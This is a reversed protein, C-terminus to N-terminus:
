LNLGDQLVELAQAHVRKDGAAIARGDDNVPGGDWNSIVGGAGRVIPVLAQIDYANLGAEVVLDIQGMALMGYGYCDGGYRLLKCRGALHDFAKWEELAPFCGPHTSSLIADGLSSCARTELVRPESGTRQYQARESDGSFVEGLIPQGMVGLFAEEGDTLAMLTGWHLFGSVFERTGDIPDLVWTLGNGEHRGFEEGLISHEPYHKLIEARIFSETDRDAVTVPDYDGQEALKNDVQILRRFHPRVVAGSREVVDVAFALLEARRCPKM